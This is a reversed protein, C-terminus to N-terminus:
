QVVECLWRINKEKSYILTEEIFSMFLVKFIHLYKLKLKKIKLVVHTVIKSDLFGGHLIKMIIKEVRKLTYNVSFYLM